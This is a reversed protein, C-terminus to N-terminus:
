HFPWSGLRTRLVSPPFACAGPAVVLFQDNFSGAARLGSVLGVVSLFVSDGAGPETLLTPHEDAVFGALEVPSPRRPYEDAAWDAAMMLLVMLRGPPEDPYMERQLDEIKKLAQLFWRM